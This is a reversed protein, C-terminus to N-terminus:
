NVTQNEHFDTSRPTPFLQPCLLSTSLVKYVIVFMLIHLVPHNSMPPGFLLHSSWNQFNQFYSHVQLVGDMFSSSSFIIVLHCQHYYFENLLYSFLSGGYM